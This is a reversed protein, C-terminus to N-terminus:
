EVPFGSNLETPEILSNAIQCEYLASPTNQESNSVFIAKELLLDSIDTM